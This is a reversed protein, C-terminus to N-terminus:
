FQLSRNQHCKASINLISWFLTQISCNEHLNAKKILKEDKLGSVSFFAFKSAADLVFAGVKVFNLKKYMYRLEYYKACM